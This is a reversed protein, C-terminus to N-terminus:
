TVRIFTIDSVSTHPAPEITPNRERLLEKVDEEEVGEEEAEVGEDVEL